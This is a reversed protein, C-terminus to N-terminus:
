DSCFIWNMQEGYEEDIENRTNIKVRIIHISPHVLQKTGRSHSRGSPILKVTTPGADLITGPM